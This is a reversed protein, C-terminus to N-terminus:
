SVQKQANDELMYFKLMHETFNCTILISFTAGLLFCLYHICYVNFGRIGHVWDMGIYISLYVYIYSLYKFNHPMLITALNKEDIEQHNSM